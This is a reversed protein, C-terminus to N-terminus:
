SGAQTSLNPALRFRHKLIFKLLSRFHHRKASSNWRQGSDRRHQHTMVADGQYIVKFGRQKARWCLDVDEFYLFFREDFPTEDSFASRRLLMAAGLGWDVETTGQHDWNTMLHRRVLPHEPFIRNWPSRRLLLTRYTYFRRCSYQLTGDPNVLRPLAIAVRPDASFTRLLAEISGPHASVDPNLLLIGEHSTQRIGRNAAAAFGLNSPNQLVRLSPWRAREVGQLDQPSDNNVVCIELEISPTCEFLEQLCSPLLSGSRYNVIVVSIATM